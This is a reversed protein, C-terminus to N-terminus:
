RVSSGGGNSSIRCCASWAPSSSRAITNPEYVSGFTLFSRLGEPSLEFPVVGAALVSRLTSGIVWGDDHQAHYMPRIGLRDRAVLVEPPDDRVFVFAFMGNTRELFDPGERELGELLVETDTRTRWGGGPAGLKRGLEVHNYVEGNYVIACRGSASVMPQHANGSRDIVDFQAHGMQIPTGAVDISLRAVGDPGRRGLLARVLSRLDRDKAQPGGVVLFGCM